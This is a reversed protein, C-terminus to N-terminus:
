NDPLGEQYMDFSFPFMKTENKVGLFEEQILVSILLHLLLEPLSTIESPSQWSAHRIFYLPQLLLQTNSIFCITGTLSCKWVLMVSFYLPAFSGVPGTTRLSHTLQCSLAPCRPPSYHHSGQVPIAQTQIWVSLLQTVKPLNGTM